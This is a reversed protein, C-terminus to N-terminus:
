SPSSSQKARWRTVVDSALAGVLVVNFVILATTLGKALQGVPHIDGYGVTGMTVVTFYLADMRTTLGEFQTPDWAQTLAFVASFTFVVAILLFVLVSTRRNSEGRENARIERAIVYGLLVIGLVAVLWTLGRFGSTGTPTGFYLALLGVLALVKRLWGSSMM